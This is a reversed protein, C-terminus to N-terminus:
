ESIRWPPAGDAAIMTGSPYVPLLGWLIDSYEIKMSFTGNRAFRERPNWGWRQPGSLYQGSRWQVRAKYQIDQCFSNELAVVMCWYKKQSQLFKVIYFCHQWLGQLPTSSQYSFLSLCFCSYLTIFMQNNHCIIVKFPQIFMIRTYPFFKIIIGEVSTKEVAQFPFFNKFLAGIEPRM